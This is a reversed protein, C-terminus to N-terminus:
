KNLKDQEEFYEEITKKRPKVAGEDLLEKMVWLVSKDTNGRAIAQDIGELLEKKFNDEWEKILLDNGENILDKEKVMQGGRKNTKGM